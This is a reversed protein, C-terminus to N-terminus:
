KKDFCKAKGFYKKQLELSIKSQLLDIPCSIGLFMVKVLNPIMIAKSISFGSPM